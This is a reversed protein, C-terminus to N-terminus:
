RPLRGLVFKTTPGTCPAVAPHAFLAALEATAGPALDAIDQVLGALITDDASAGNNIENQL